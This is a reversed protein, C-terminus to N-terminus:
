HGIEDSFSVNYSHATWPVRTHESSTSYMPHFAYPAESCTSASPRFLPHKFGNAISATMSGSQGSTNDAISTVLGATSDHISITLQDGASMFLVKSPDPTFTAATASLPDPPAQPVGNKTVFAFNAWEEGATARCAANNVQTLHEHGLGPHLACGPESLEAVRV